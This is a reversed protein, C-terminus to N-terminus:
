STEFATALAASFTRWVQEPCRRDNLANIVLDDFSKLVSEDFAPMLYEFKEFTIVSIKIKVGEGEDVDISNLLNNVDVDPGLAHCVFNLVITWSELDAVGRLEEARSRLSKRLTALHHQIYIANLTGSHAEYAEILCKSTQQFDCDGIRGSSVNTANISAGL